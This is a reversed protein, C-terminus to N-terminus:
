YAAVRDLYYQLALSLSDSCVFCTFVLLALSEGGHGGFLGWGVVVDILIWRDGWFGLHDVTYVCASPHGKPAPHDGDVVIPLIVKLCEVKGMGM